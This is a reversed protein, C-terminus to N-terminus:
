VGWLKFILNGIFVGFYNSLIYGLIGCLIGPTILEKYGRAAATAAATPPGGLSANAAISIEEISYKFLRGFILSFAAMILFTIFAYLLLVPGIQVVERLNAEISVAIFFIFMLFMGLERAGKIDGVQKPFLTALIVTILTIILYKQGFLQSIVFPPNFSNVFNAITISVAVITIAVALAKAMSFADMQSEEQMSEKSEAIEAANMESQMPYSTKFRKRIFKIDPLITLISLTFVFSITDAVYIANWASKSINFVEGMIVMNVSGGCQSGVFVAAIKHLEPIQDRFLFSVFMIGLMAGVCTILFMFALKGTEKYIAVLNAKFLMLPIAVPVVFGWIADYVPSTTPMLGISSLIMGGTLCILAAGVAAAWKYHREAYMAFFVFVIIVGWLLITNDSSILSTMKDDGKKKEFSSAQNQM